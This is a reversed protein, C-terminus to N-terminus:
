RSVQGTSPGSQGAATKPSVWGFGSFGVLVRLFGSFGVSVWLRMPTSGERHNWTVQSVCTGCNVKQEATMFNGNSLTKYTETIVKCSLKNLQKEMVGISSWIYENSM